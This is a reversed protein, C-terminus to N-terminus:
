QEKYPTLFEDRPSLDRNPRINSISHADAKRANALNNAINSSNGRGLYEVSVETTAIQQWQTHALEIPERSAILINKGPIEVVHEFVEFLSSRIRPTPAWTAVFGGPELHQSCMQFFEVSYLNGSYASHPRLADAEIIDYRDNGLALAARGDAHRLRVREDTLLRRLEPLKEKERESLVQLLQWEPTILEFVDVRETAPRFAAAWATDGSGLGIIAVRRPAPHIAAPAAGLLTHVGGFPIYSHGKGNVSVRFATGESGIAAVGTVDEGILTVESQAGHLRRWFENNDPLIVWVGVLVILLAPFTSKLGIQSTKWIGLIAFVVGILLLLRVSGTTGLWSLLVLGTLLSGAVNGSINAAQLVGVKFGTTQLDNQVARQLIGFSFGMLLTPIGYLLLPLVLYLGLINNWDWSRGFPFEDYQAWYEILAALGPTDAPLAALLGLSLGSLALLFCQCVLFARLPHRLRQAWVGGFASGAGIGLLFIALVTGFTFATSKVAVDLVRFWLIELSLACFGSVAYLAVWGIFPLETDNTRSADMAVFTSEASPEAPELARGALTVVAIGVLLNGVAGIAIAGSIGFFRILVWTTLLAGSAAGITNLGYYFGLTSAASTSDRIVAQALFPLSMGMLTTPLLLSGFQILGARWPIAFLWGMQGYLLDYLIWSSALGLGGIGLELVAFVHLARHPAMGRSVWGGVYSGIGLGAMFAAVIMAVSYIGVGSQLALIRQWSVQYVLASAGSILFGAAVVVRGFKAGCWSTPPDLGDRLAVEAGIGEKPNDSTALRGPRHAHASM